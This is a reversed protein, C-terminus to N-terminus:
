FGLLEVLQLGQPTIHINAGDTRKIFHTKVLIQVTNDASKDNQHIKQGVQYRSVSISTDKDVIKALTCLFLEDKTLKSKM